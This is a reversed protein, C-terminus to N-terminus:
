SDLPRTYVNKERIWKIVDLCAKAEIYSECLPNEKHNELKQLAEVEIADLEDKRLLIYERTVSM